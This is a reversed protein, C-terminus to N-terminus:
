RGSDMREIFIDLQSDTLQATDLSLLDDMTMTRIEGIETEVRNLSSFMAEAAEPTLVRRVISEIRNGREASTERVSKPNTRDQSYRMDDVYQNMMLDVFNTMKFQAVEPNQFWDMGQPVIAMIRQQEVVPPRGSSALASIADRELVRLNQAAEEATEGVPMFPIQGVTSNWLGILSAGFGTGAGPDFALDELATGSPAQIVPQEEGTDVDVLKGTGTIPDYTILNGKEDMMARADVAKTADEVSLSFLEQYEKIKRARQDAEGGAPPAGGYRMFEQYESTGATMGSAEARAQLTQMATTAEGTDTAIADQYARYDEPGVAGAYMMEVTKLAQDPDTGFEEFLEISQSPDRSGRQLYDIQDGLIDQARAPDALIKEFTQRQDAKQRERMEGGISMSAEMEDALQPFESLIDAMAAPDNSAVAAQAKKRAEQLVRQQEAKEKELRKRERGQGILSGLGSLRDGFGRGATLDVGYNLPM